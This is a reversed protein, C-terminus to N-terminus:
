RCILTLTIRPSGMFDEEPDLPFSVAYVDKFRSTEGAEESNHEKISDSM